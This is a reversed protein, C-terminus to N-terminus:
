SGTGAAPSPTALWRNAVRDFCGAFPDGAAMMVHKAIKNSSTRPFGEVYQVYRPVKFPALEGRCHALLREPSLVEAPAAGAALLEPRIQIAIKVEEKREPDPVPLAACDLVEPLARVVAEVERAAINESSRRIMDKFRGVLRYFGEEDRVFADGTRFWGDVFAAANAEPKGYYGQFLHEGRIQLEGTVGAGVPRGADDVIRAERRAAAVGVSTPRLAAPYGPPMALGLGIETMGFSERAVAGTRAEFAIRSEGSWGFTFSQVLKLRGPPVSDMAKLALEPIQAWEIGLDALWGLFKTASIKRAAFLTGGSRLTMLLQWFPDMYFFPQATFFRKMPRPHMLCAMHALHLWYGHTLLCGKPFGTTGSTYQINAISQLTPRAEDPLPPLAAGERTWRAWTSSEERLPAHAADKAAVCGAEIVWARRLSGPWPALARAEDLREAPVIWAVADSDGLVYALERPTYSPNVPVVAAGIKLVALWTAHWHPGNPLMVAVHMGPRLGQAWLSRALQDATRELEGCTLREGTEFFDLLAEDPRTRAAEAFVAPIHAPLPAQAARAMADRWQAVIAEPTM